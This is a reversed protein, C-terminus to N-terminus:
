VTFGQANVYLSGPDVTTMEFTIAENVGGRLPQDFNITKPDNTQMNVAARWLVTAGSKLIVEHQGTGSVSSLQLSRVAHSVAATATKLTVAATSNVIGLSPPAYTWANDAVPVSDVLLAGYADVQLARARGTAEDKAIM